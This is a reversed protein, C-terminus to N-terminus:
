GLYLVGQTAIWAIPKNTIIVVKKPLLINVQNMSIDANPWADANTKAPKLRQLNLFRKLSELLLVRKPVKQTIAPIKKKVRSNVKFIANVPIMAM